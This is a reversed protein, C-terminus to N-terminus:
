SNAIAEQVELCECIAEQVELCECSAEQVELNGGAGGSM